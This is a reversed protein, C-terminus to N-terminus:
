RYPFFNRFSNSSALIAVDCLLIGCTFGTDYTKTSLEIITAVSWLVLVYLLRLAFEFTPITISM